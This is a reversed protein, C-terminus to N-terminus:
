PQRTSNVQELYDSDIVLDGKKNPDGSIFGVLNVVSGEFEGDLLDAYVTYHM